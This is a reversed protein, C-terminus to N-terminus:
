LLRHVKGRRPLQVRTVLVLSQHHITLDAHHVRRVFKGNSTPIIRVRARPGRAEALAERVFVLNCLIVVERGPLHALVVRQQGPADASHGAFQRAARGSYQQILCCQHPWELSYTHELDRLKCRVGIIWFIRCAAQGRRVM